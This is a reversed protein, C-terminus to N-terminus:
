ALTKVYEDKVMGQITLKNCDFRTLVSVSPAMSISQWISLSISRAFFNQRFVKSFDLPVMSLTGILPTDTNLPNFKSFICLSGKGLSLAFQRYYHPTRLHSYIPKPKIRSPLDIIHSELLTCRFFLLLLSLISM